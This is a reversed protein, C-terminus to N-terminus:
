YYTSLLSFGFSISRLLFIVLKACDVAFSTMEACMQHLYAPDFRQGRSHWERFICRNEITQPSKNITRQYYSCILIYSKLLKNM